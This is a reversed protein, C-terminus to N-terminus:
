ARAGEIAASHTTTEQSPMHLETEAEIEEDLTQPGFQDNLQAQRGQVFLKLAHWAALLAVAAFLAYGALWITQPIWMPTALPTAATSKMDVSELVVHLGRWLCLVALATLSLMALLNLFAQVRPSFRSLLFDVRTHSRTILTYAFGFAGVIGYTYSGIEDVGQLSFGFLKRGLMEVCTIASLAILWWGCAIVSADAINGLWRSAPGPPLLTKM